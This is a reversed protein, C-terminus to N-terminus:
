FYPSLTVTESIEILTKKIKGNRIYNFQKVEIMDDTKKMKVISNKMYFFLIYAIQNLM